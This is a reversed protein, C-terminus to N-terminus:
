TERRRLWSGRDREASVLKGREREAKEPNFTLLIYPVNYPILVLVFLLSSVVAIGGGGGIRAM